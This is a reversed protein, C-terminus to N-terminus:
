AAEAKPQRGRKPEAAHAVQAAPTAQWDRTKVVSFSAHTGQKIDRDNVEIRKFEERRDYVLYEAHHLVTNRDHSLCQVRVVDGAALNAAVVRQHIMQDTVKDHPCRTRIIAGFEVVFVDNPMIKHDTM